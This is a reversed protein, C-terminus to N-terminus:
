LLGRIIWEKVPLVSLMGIFVAFFLQLGIVKLLLGKQEEPEVWKSLFVYQTVITLVTAVTVQNLIYLTTTENIFYTTMPALSMFSFTTTYGVGFFVVLEIAKELVLFVVVYLQVKQILKTPIDTFVHLIYSVGYYYFAFYIVALLAAGVLSLLRAIGFTDNENTAFLETLSQTGMGWYDRIVFLFVTLLFVLLWRKRYGKMESNELMEVFYSPHTLSHWFKYQYLM